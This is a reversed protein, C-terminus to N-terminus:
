LFNTPSIVSDSRLTMSVRPKAFFVFQNSLVRGTTGAFAPVWLWRREYNHEDEGARIVMSRTYPDRCEGPRCQSRADFAYGIASFGPTCRLSLLESNHPPSIPSPSPMKTIREPMLSLSPLM